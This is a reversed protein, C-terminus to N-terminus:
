EKYHYDYQVLINNQNDIIKSLRELPDYNYFISQANPNLQENPGVLPKYIYGFVQATSLNNKLNSLLTKLYTKQPISTNALNEIAQQGGLVGSVDAYNANVIRAVLHTKRYAWLFIESLGDATRRQGPNGKDDYHDFHFLPEYNSGKKSEEYAALNVLQNPADYVYKYRRGAVLHNNKFQKEEIIRNYIYKDRHMEIPVFSAVAPDSPYYYEKRYWNGDSNKQTRYAINLHSSDYAYNIQTSLSDGNAYYYTNTKVKPYFWESIYNYQNVYYISSSPNGNNANYQFGVVFAPMKKFNPLNSDCDWAKNNSKTICSKFLYKNEQVHIKVYSDGEKKYNTVRKELGRKYDYSTHPPGFPFKYYGKAVSDPVEDPAIYDYETKGFTGNEDSFVTVKKYGVSGGQTLGIVSTPSSTRMLYHCNGAWFNPIPHSTNYAYIPYNLLVGSSRKLRDDKLTYDYIKQSIQENESNYSTIKKIRLGGAKGSLLNGSKTEDFFYLSASLYVHTSVQLIWTGSDLYVEGGLTKQLNGSSLAVLSDSSANFIREPNDSDQRFIKVEFDSDYSETCAFDPCVDCEKLWRYNITLRLHTNNKSLTFIKEGTQPGEQTLEILESPSACGQINGSASAFIKTLLSKDIALTPINDGRNLYSYDNLEYSFQTKGVTPYTIEELVQAKTHSEDPLRNAGDHVVQRQNPLFLIITPILTSTTNKNYYGWHDQKYSNHPPLKKSNYRFTYAPKGTEQIGNLQLRGSVYSHFLDFTKILTNKKDFIEISSIIQGEDELNLIIREQDTNIEKLQKSMISLNSHCLTYSIPCDAKNYVSSIYARIPNRLWSKPKPPKPTGTLAISKTESMGLNRVYNRDVYSFNIERNNPTVIKSLFWATETITIHDVCNNESATTESEEFYYVMGDPATIKFGEAFYSNIIEIKIKQYPITVIEKSLTFVFKGSGGPFNFYFVDPQSDWRGVAYNWKQDSTLSDANVEGQGFWGFSSYEDKKGMVTRTIVGGANLVWGLGVSSAIEDVKIGAAHYSLTIPLQFDGSGATYLPITINPIGTYKGVPIDGYKAFASAEPSPPVINYYPINTENEPGQGRLYFGFGLLFAIVILYKTM